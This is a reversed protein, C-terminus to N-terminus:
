RSVMCLGWKLHFDQLIVNIRRLIQDWRGENSRSWYGPHNRYPVLPFYQGNEPFFSIIWWLFQLHQCIHLLLFWFVILRPTCISPALGPGMSQLSTERLFSRAVYCCSDTVTTRIRGWLSSLLVFLLQPSLFAWIKQCSSSLTQASMPAMFGCVGGPCRTLTPIWPHWSIFPTRALTWRVTLGTSRHVWRLDNGQGRIAYYLHIYMADPLVKM